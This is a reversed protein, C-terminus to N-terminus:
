TNVIKDKETILIHAFLFAFTFTFNMCELRDIWTLDM